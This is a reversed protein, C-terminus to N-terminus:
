HLWKQAFKISLKAIKVPWVSQSNFTNQVFPDGQKKTMMEEFKNQNLSHVDITMYM